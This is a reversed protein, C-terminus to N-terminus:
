LAFQVALLRAIASRKRDIQQARMADLHALLQDRMSAIPFQLTVDTTGGHVRLEDTKEQWETAVVYLPELVEIHGLTRDRTDPRVVVFLDANLLCYVDSRLVCPLLSREALPLPDGVRFFRRLVASDEQADRGIAALEDALLRGDLMLLNLRDLAVLLELLMAIRATPPAPPGVLMAWEVSLAASSDADRTAAVVAGEWAALEMPVKAQFAALLRRLRDAKAPAWCPPALPAMARSSGRGGTATMHTLVDLAIQLSVFSGPAAASPHTLVTRLLAFTALRLAADSSTALALLAQRYWNGTVDFVVAAADELPWSGVPFPRQLCCSEVDCGDVNHPEFVVPPLAATPSAPAMSSRPSRTAATPSLVLSNRRIELSGSSSSSSLTGLARVRPSDLAADVSAARSLTKKDGLGLAATMYTSHQMEPHLLMVATAHLLPTHTSRSFFQTLLHLALLPSIGDPAKSRACNPLLSAALLHTLYSDFLAEGLCFSLDPMPVQLIDQLYYWQDVLKDEIYEFRDRAGAHAQLTRALAVNQAVLDLFYVLNAPQTLFRRMRDDPVRLVNLIVTKMAIQVQIEPCHRFQLAEVYLPFTRTTANFFFQVTDITLRISVAKLFTVYWDRVDEHDLRFHRCSLLRNIYNNSLIYYLSTATSINQVLISLTQLLQVQVRVGLPRGGMMAVFLAMMNKECFYEFFFTESSHQDSYILFESLVRLLEVLTAEPLERYRMLQTHVSVLGEFSYSTVVPAKKFWSLM